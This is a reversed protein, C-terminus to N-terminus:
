THISESDDILVWEKGLSEEGNNIRKIKEVCDEVTEFIYKKDLVALMWDPLGGIGGNVIALIPKQQKEALFCEEYTGCMHVNTDIHVIICDSIDVYRLDLHRYEKVFKTLEDWRGQQKLQNAYSKEDNVKHKSNIPKNKPDIVKIPIENQYVLDKLYERWNRGDDQAFQIPGALYVKANNLQNLSM